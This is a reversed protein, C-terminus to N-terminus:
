FCISFYDFRRSVFFTQRQLKSHTSGKANSILLFTIEFSVCIICLVTNAALSFVRTCGVKLLFITQLQSGSFALGLANLVTFSYFRM